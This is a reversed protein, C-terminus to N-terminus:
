GNMNKQERYHAIDLLTIMESDRGIGACMTRIHYQEASDDLFIYHGKQGM